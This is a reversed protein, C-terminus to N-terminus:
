YLLTYLLNNQFVRNGTLSQHRECLFMSQSLQVPAIADFGPLLDGRYDGLLSRRTVVSDGPEHILNRYDIGPFRNGIAKSSERPLMRGRVEEIILRAVTAECDGGFVYPRVDRLDTERAM